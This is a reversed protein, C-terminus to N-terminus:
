RGGAAFPTGERRRGNVGARHKSLVEDTCTLRCARVRPSHRRPARTMPQYRIPGTLHRRLVGNEHRLVLLEADKAADRRLLVAPVALLKRAAQYVLSVIVQVPNWCATTVRWV